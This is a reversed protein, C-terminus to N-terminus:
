TLKFALKGFDWNPIALMMENTSSRYLTSGVAQVCQIEFAAPELLILMLGDQRKVSESQAALSDHLAAQDESPDGLIYSFGVLRNQEDRLYDADGLYEEAPHFVKGGYALVVPLETFASAQPEGCRFWILLYSPKM